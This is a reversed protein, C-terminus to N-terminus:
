WSFIFYMEVKSQPIDQQISGLVGPITLNMLSLTTQSVRLNLFSPLCSVTIPYGSPRMSSFLCLLSIRFLLVILNMQFTGLQKRISSLDVRATCHHSSPLTDGPDRWMADTVKQVNLVPLLKQLPKIHNTITLHKFLSDSSNSTKINNSVTSCCCCAARYCHPPFGTTTQIYNTKWPNMSQSCPAWIHGHSFLVKPYPDNNDCEQFLSVFTM